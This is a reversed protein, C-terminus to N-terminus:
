GWPWYKISIKGIVNSRKVNGISSSRSDESNNSNDGLVFYEDSKLTIEDAALGASLIDEDSFSKAKKGDIYVKGKKIQITEGPLGIVRKVYYSDNKEDDTRFVVVDYRSPGKIQCILRNVLHKEGSEYTPMMSDGQITFSFCVFRVILFAALIVAAFKLIYGIIKERRQRKQKRMQYTVTYGNRM